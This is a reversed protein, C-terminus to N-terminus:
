GGHDLWEGLRGHARATALLDRQLLSHGTERLRRALWGGGTEGSGATGAAGHRPRDRGRLRRTAEALGGRVGGRQWGQVVATTAGVTKRHDLDQLLLDPTIDAIHPPLMPQFGSQALLGPSCWRDALAVVLAAGREWGGAQAMHRLDQWDFGGHRAMMATDVLSLPGGDLRNSYAAHVLAHAMRDLPVLYPVPDDGECVARQLMAASDCAPMVRGITESREWLRMHLEIRVGDPALLPPLHKDHHLMEEAPRASAEEQRYGNAVLLDFAPLVNDPALLLDLDRMPREAAAPYAHWATWAGKLAVARLGESELLSLTELLRRRMALAAIGSARHATQWEARVQAPIPLSLEGRALRAHLYPAIRHQAAMASVQAWASADLIPSASADPAPGVLALLFRRLEGRGPM